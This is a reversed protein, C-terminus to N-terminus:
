GVREGDRRKLADELPREGVVSRTSEM